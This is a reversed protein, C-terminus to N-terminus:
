ILTKETRPTKPFFLFGHLGYLTTERCLSLYITKHIFKKYLIYYNRVENNKIWYRLITCPQNYEIIDLPFLIDVGKIGPNKM